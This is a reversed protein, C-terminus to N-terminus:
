SCSEDNRAAPLARSGAIWYGNDAFVPNRSEGRIGVISTHVFDSSAFISRDVHSEAALHIVADSSFDEFLAEIVSRDCIDAKAVSAVSNLTGAYTLKDVNLVVKDTRPYPFPV